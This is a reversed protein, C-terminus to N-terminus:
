DKFKLCYEFVADNNNARCPCLFIFFRKDAGSIIDKIIRDNSEKPRVPTKDLRIQKRLKDPKIIKEFRQFM